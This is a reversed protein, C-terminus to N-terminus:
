VSNRSIEFSENELRFQSKQPFIVYIIVLIFERIKVFEGKIDYIIHNKSNKVFIAMTSINMELSVDFTMYLILEYFDSNDNWHNESLFSLKPKFIFIKFNRTIWGLYLTKLIIIVM